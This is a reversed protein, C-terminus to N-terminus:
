KGRMEDLRLQADLDELEENTYDKAADAFEDYNSFSLSEDKQLEFKLHRDFLGDFLFHKDKSLHSVKDRLIRFIETDSKKTEIKSKVKYKELIETIENESFEAEYKVNISEPNTSAFYYFLYEDESLCLEFDEIEELEGQEKVPFAKAVPVALIGMYLRVEYTGELENLISNITSSHELIRKERSFDLLDDTKFDYQMNTDYKKIQDFFNEVDNIAGPPLSGLNFVKKKHYNSKLLNYLNEANFIRQLSTIFIKKKNKEIPKKLDKWEAKVKEHDKLKSKNRRILKYVSTRNPLNKRQFESNFAFSIDKFKQLEYEEEGNEIKTYTRDGIKKINNKKFFSGMKDKELGLLQRLNVLELENALFTEKVKKIM